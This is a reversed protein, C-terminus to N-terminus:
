RNTQQQSYTQPNKHLFKAFVDKGEELICTKYRGKAVVADLEHRDAVIEMAGELDEPHLDQEM